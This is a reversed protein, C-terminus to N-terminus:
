RGDSRYGIDLSGSGVDAELTSSSAADGLAPDISSSGSGTGGNIRYRSGKPMSMTVSGSGTSVRVDQPASRFTLDVAGSTSAVDARASSLDTGQTMGSTTRARVPGSLRRLTIAGSTGDLQVEGSLDTVEVSGSTVSGSVATGPPVELEISAGCNYFPLSRRCAVGVTMTDGVVDASVRPESVTWDLSKRVVVRDAVGPKIRVSASSTALQLRHVSAVYTQQESRSQRAALALTQAAGMVVVFVVTLVGTLRWARTARASM